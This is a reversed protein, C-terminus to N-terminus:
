GVNTAGPRAVVGEKAHNAEKASPAPIVEGTKSTADQEGSGDNESYVPFEVGDVPEWGYRGLAEILDDALPSHGGASPGRDAAEFREAAADLVPAPHCQECLWHGHARRWFARGGCHRCADTPTPLLKPDSEDRLAALVEVKEALLRRALSEQGIPGRILLRGGVDKVVFGQARAQALLEVGGM